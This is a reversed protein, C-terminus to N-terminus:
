AWEVRAVDPLYLLSRAPEFAALFGSLESGYDNLYASCPPHARVFAHAAADFFDAGVIRQVAPYSLRLANLLTGTLTNRYIDLPQETNQGGEHPASLLRARMSRQLELLAPM